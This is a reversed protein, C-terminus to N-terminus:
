SAAALQKASMRYVAGDSVRSVIWGKRPGAPRSLQYQHGGYSVVTGVVRAKQQLSKTAHFECVKQRWGAAYGFGNEPPDAKNLLSLPCNVECPGMDESLGKNGWGGGREKKILDLTIFTRGDPKRVLQWVNNGVVRHEIPEYGPSFHRASTLDAIFSERSRPYCEFSWGM